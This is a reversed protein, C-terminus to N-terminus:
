VFWSWGTEAWDHCQPLAHAPAWSSLRWWVKNKMANLRHQWPKNLWFQLLMGEWGAVSKERCGVVSNWCMEMKPETVWWQKFGCHLVVIKEWILNIYSSKDHEAVKLYVGGVPNTSNAPIELSDEVLALTTMKFSWNFCLEKKWKGGLDLTSWQHPEDRKLRM